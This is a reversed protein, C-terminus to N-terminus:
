SLKVKKLWGGTMRGVELISQSFFDYAQMNIYKMDKSIRVMYRLCDIKLKAKSLIDMKAASYNAMVLLELIELMLKEIRDGLLFRQDKPYKSLKPLFWIILKYHKEVVPSVSKIDM